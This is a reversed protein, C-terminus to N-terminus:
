SARGDYVTLMMSNLSPCTARSIWYKPSGNSGPGERACHTSRIGQFSAPMLTAMWQERTRLQRDIRDRERTIEDALYQHPLHGFADGAATNDFSFRIDDAVGRAVAPHRAGLSYTLGRTPGHVGEFRRRVAASKSFDCGSGADTHWLTTTATFAM